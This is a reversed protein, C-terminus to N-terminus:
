KIRMTNDYLINNSINKLSVVFGCVYWFHPYYLVALFTASIFFGAFSALFTVSIYKLYQSDKSDFLISIKNIYFIDKLCVFILSFYIIIGIIGTEPILTFWISHAVRGWMSRRFFDSQYKPFLIQFNNGGVGLPHEKFMNWGAKWSEIREKGTNDKGDTATSMEAWYSKGAFLVFIIGVMAIISLTLIKKPSFWWYVFFMAIIGLFGGRSFAIITALLCVLTCTAFIIKHWIKKSILFMSFCFPLWTNVFLSLDNEDLFVGSSGHGSHFISWIAQFMMLGITFNILYKFRDLTNVTAYCSYIFPMLVIMNEVTNFAYRHNEAFPVHMALLIIFFWILRFQPIRFNLIGFNRLSFILLVIISIFAPKLLGIPHIIEQPRGYDFFLYILVFVFWVPNTNKYVGSEYQDQITM